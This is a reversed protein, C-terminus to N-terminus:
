DYFIAVIFIYIYFLIAGFFMPLVLAVLLKWLSLTAIPDTWADIFYSFM